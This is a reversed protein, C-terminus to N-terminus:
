VKGFQQKKIKSKEEKKKAILGPCHCGSQRVYNLNREAACIALMLQNHSRPSLSTTIPTRQKMRIGFTIIPNEHSCKTAYTACKNNSARSRSPNWTPTTHANPSQWLKQHRGTSRVQVVHWLLKLVRCKRCASAVSTSGGKGGAKDARSGSVLGRFFSFIFIFIFIFFFDLM